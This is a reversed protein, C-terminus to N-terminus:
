KWFEWWKSESKVKNNMKDKNFYYRGLEIPTRIGCVWLYIDGTTAPCICGDNERYIFQEGCIEFNVQGDNYHFNNAVPCIALIKTKSKDM